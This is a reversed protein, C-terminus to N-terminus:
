DLGLKKFLEFTSYFEVGCDKFHKTNNTWIPAKLFLALALLPVDDVDKSHIKNWAKTYTEKYIDPTHVKLPLNYLAALTDGLAVNKKASLYPLYELVEEFASVTTHFDSKGELHRFILLSRGGVAAQLLANADVVLCDIPNEGIKM